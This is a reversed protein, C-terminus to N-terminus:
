DNGNRNAIANLGASIDGRSSNGSITSILLYCPEKGDAATIVGENFNEDGGSIGTVVKRMADLYIQRDEAYRATVQQQPTWFARAAELDRVRGEKVAKDMDNPAAQVGGAHCFICFGTMVQRDRNNLPDVVFSQEAKTREQNANGWIYYAILGNPMHHWVEAAVTGYDAVMGDGRFQPVGRAGNIWILERRTGNFDDFAEWLSGRGNAMPRRQAYRPGFTIANQVGIKETPEGAGLRRNLQRGFEPTDILDNYVGGHLLNYALRDAPVPQNADFPALDLRRAPSFVDKSQGRAAIEWKRLAEAGWYKSLDLAFVVGHGESVDEPSVIDTAAVAVSNIAKSLGVRAYNLEKPDRFFDVPIYTYRVTAGAAGRKAKDAEVWQTIREPTMQLADLSLYAKGASRSVAQEITSQDGGSDDDQQDGRRDDLGPGDDLADGKKDIARGSNSPSLPTCSSALLSLALTSTLVASLNALNRM